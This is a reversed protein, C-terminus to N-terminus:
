DHQDMHYRIRAKSYAWERRIWHPSRELMEAVQEHTRDAFHKLYVIEAHIPSEEELRDLAWGFVEYDFRDEPVLANEPRLHPHLLKSDIKKMRRKRRSRDILVRRMAQAVIGYYQRDSYACRALTGITRHIKLWAEHVLGTAGLTDAAPDCLLNREALGRLEEYVMPLLQDTSATVSAVKGIRDVMLRVGSRSVGDATTQRGIVSTAYDNAPCHEILV